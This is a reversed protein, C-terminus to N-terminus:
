NYFRVEKNSMVVFLYKYKFIINLRMPEMKLDKAPWM